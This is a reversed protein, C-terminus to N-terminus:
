PNPEKHPMPLLERDPTAAAAPPPTPPKAYAPPLALPLVVAAERYGGARAAAAGSRWGAFWDDIDQRGQPTEFGATRYEWPPEAPPQGTGDNQLYDAFGARFGAGYHYGNALAPDDAVAHQWADDAMQDFRCRTLCRDRADVSFDLLNKAGYYYFSCGPQLVCLLLLWRRRADKM